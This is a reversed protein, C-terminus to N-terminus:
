LPDGDYGKKFLIGEHLFYRVALRKLKYKEGHKQPLIGETLYQVFPSRWNENTFVDNSEDKDAVLNYAECQIQVLNADKGMCPWYFGARQLRRCLSIESYFGCTKGHAKKFKRQAEERGVCRSLMGGPMKRYLEGKMLTYDKLTKLDAMDGEKM